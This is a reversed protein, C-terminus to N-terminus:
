RAEATRGSSRSTPSVVPPPALAPRPRPRRPVVLHVRVVLLVRPPRPRRRCPCPRCPSRRRRCPCSSFSPASMVGDGGGGRRGRRSRVPRCERGPRRERRRFRRRVRFTTAALRGFIWRSARPDRERTCGRRGRNSSKHRACVDGRQFNLRSRQGGAACIGFRTADSALYPMKAPAAVRAVAQVSPSVSVSSTVTSAAVSAARAASACIRRPPSASVLSVRTPFTWRRPPPRAAALAAVAAAIAATSSAVRRADASVEASPTPPRKPASGVRNSASTSGAPPTPPSKARQRRQAAVDGSTVERRGLRRRPRNEAVPADIRSGCHSEARNTALRPPTPPMARRPAFGVANSEAYRCYPRSRLPPAARARRAARTGFPPRRRSSLVPPPTTGPASAPVCSLCSSPPPPAPFDPSHRQVVRQLFVPSAGLIARLECRRKKIRPSLPSLSLRGARRLRTPNRVSHRTGHARTSRDRRRAFARIRSHALTRIHSHVRRDM